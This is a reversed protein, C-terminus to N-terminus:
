PIFSEVLILAMGDLVEQDQAKLWAIAEERSHFWNEDENIEKLNLRDILKGDQSYQGFSYIIDM